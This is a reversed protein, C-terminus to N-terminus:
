YTSVPKALVIRFGTVDNSVMDGVSNRNTVRCDRRASAWGGGRVVKSSTNMPGVPDVEANTAYDAVYGDLCWEWVNGSMDYLGIRNPKAQAVNQTGRSKGVFLGVEALDDSGSFDHRQSVIGGKAAYEWEAETPLRYVLGEPLRGAETEVQTLRSCFAVADHWTVHEVPRLM